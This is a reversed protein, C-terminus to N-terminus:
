KKPVFNKSGVRKFKSGRIIEPPEPLLRGILKTAMYYKHNKSTSHRALSLLDAGEKQPYTIADGTVHEIQLPLRGGLNLPVIELAKNKINDLAQLALNAQNFEEDGFDVSENALDGARTKTDPKM